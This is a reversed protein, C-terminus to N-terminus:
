YECFGNELYHHVIFNGMEKDTGEALGVTIERFCLQTKEIYSFTMFEDRTEGIM